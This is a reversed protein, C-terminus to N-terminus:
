RWWSFFEDLGQQPSVGPHWGLQQNATESRKAFNISLIDVVRRTLPPANNSGIMRYLNELMIALPMVMFKAITRSPARADIRSAVENFFDHIGMDNNAVGIYRQGASQPNVAALYFLECLDDIYILPANNEGGTVYFLGGKKLGEIVKPLFKTDGPGYILGPYVTAASLQHNNEYQSVVRDAQAKSRAYISALMPFLRPIRLTAISSCNILRCFPNCHIIADCINRVGEVNVKRYDDASGHGVHAALHVVVDVKSVLQKVSDADTVCGEVIQYDVADALEAARQPRVLGVVSFGRQQLIEALRQGLTGTIGTIGIVPTAETLKNNM